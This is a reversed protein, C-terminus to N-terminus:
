EPPWVLYFDSVEVTNRHQDSNVGVSVSALNKLDTKADPDSANSTSRDRGLREIPFYVTHWEGDAPMLSQSTLYGIENRKWLFARVTGPFTVRARVLIGEAGDLDNRGIGGTRPVQIRPYAWYSTSDGDKRFSINFAVSDKNQVAQMEGGTKRSVYRTNWKAADRVPIELRRTYFKRLTEIPLEAALDVSLTRVAPQGDGALIGDIRVTVQPSQDFLPKLDIQWTFDHESRPPLTITASPIGPLPTAAKGRPGATLSVTVTRAARTDLNVARVRFPIADLPGPAIANIETGFKIRKEDPVFQLIVPSAPPRGSDPQRAERYLTM